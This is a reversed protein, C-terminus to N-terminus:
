KKETWVPLPWSYVFVYVFILNRVVWTAYITVFDFDFLNKKYCYTELHLSILLSLWGISWFMVQTHVSYWMDASVRYAEEWKGAMNYMDIADKISDAQIFYKEAHQFHWM